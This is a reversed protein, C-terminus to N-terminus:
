PLPLFVVKYFGYVCRAFTRTYGIKVWRHSAPIRLDWQGHVKAPFLGEWLLGGTDGVTTPFITHKYESAESIACV